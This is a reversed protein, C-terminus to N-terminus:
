HKHVELASDPKLAEVNVVVDVEGAREFKLKVPVKDGVKFQTKLGMLMVHYGDKKLGRTMPVTTKAPIEIVSVQRMRMIDNETSMVHLETSAALARAVTASILRDAKDGKNTISKFFVGGVAQGQVTAITYPHAIDIEGVKFGHAAASLSACALAAFTVISLTRKYAFPTVFKMPNGIIIPKGCAQM